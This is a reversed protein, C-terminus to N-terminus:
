KSDLIKKFQIGSNKWTFQKASILAERALSDRLERNEIMRILCSKLEQENKPEFMLCNFEDKAYENVGGAKSCIVASGCAMAELPPLGFGEWWSTSIFIDSDCYAKAIDKDSQPVIINIGTTDFCSLDDHSVMVVKKVRERYEPELHHWMNIFNVIGKLPHKRAVLCISLKDDSTSQIRCTANFVDLNLAPHVLNFPVDVRQSDKCYQEYVYKSNFLFKVNKYRYSHLCLKKYIKLIAGQGMIAGDDFIRYDDAQVFRYLSKSKILFLFISFLPDSSVITDDIHNSNLYKVTRIVNAIKALKDKALKGISRVSVKESLTFTHKDTSNNPAIISVENSKEQSLHNALEIFVRNGGGTKLSPTVFVIKM